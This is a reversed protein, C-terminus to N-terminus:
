PTARGAYWCSLVREAPKGRPSYGRDKLDRPGFWNWLYIGEIPAEDGWVQALVEYLRAQLAPDSAGRPRYDWPYAAAQDHAPYGVETIIVPLKARAQWAHFRAIFPNWGKILAVRDPADESSLEQYATMGAVDLADWFTPVEFHDWNGSYTLQGAYVARVATILARWRVDEREMSLLESGVAFLSVGHAQALRAYRLIFAEYSAWWRGADEPILTGRWEGMRRQEVHIIPMLFTRLGRERAADLVWGVMADPTTVEPDPSIVSSRIDPQAWRVAIQVDTAGVARIEDLLEGYIRRQVAEDPDSVFLGLSVGRRWGPGRNLRPVRECTDVQAARTPEAVPSVEAARESTPAVRDCGFCLTLLACLLQRERHHQAFIIHPM